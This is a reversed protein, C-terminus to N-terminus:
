NANADAGGRSSAITWIRNRNTNETKRQKENIGEAKM